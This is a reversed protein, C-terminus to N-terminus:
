RWIHCPLGFTELTRTGSFFLCCHLTSLFSITAWSTFRGSEACNFVLYTPLRFIFLNKLLTVVQSVLVKAALVVDFVMLNSMSLIFLVYTFSESEVVNFTLVNFFVQQDYLLYILLNRIGIRMLINVFQSENNPNFKYADFYYIFRVFALLILGSLQVLATLIVSCAVLAFLMLM